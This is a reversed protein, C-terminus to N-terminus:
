SAKADMIAIYEKCKLSHQYQMHNNMNSVNFNTFNQHSKTKKQRRLNAETLLVERGFAQCFCCVAVDVKNLNENSIMVKLGYQYVCQYKCPYKLKPPM